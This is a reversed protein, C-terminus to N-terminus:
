LGFLRREIQRELSDTFKGGHQALWSELEREVARQRAASLHQLFLRILGPKARHKARRGDLWRIPKFTQLTM